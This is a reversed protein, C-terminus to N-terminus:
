GGYAFPHVGDPADERVRQFWTRVRPNVSFVGSSLGLLGWEHDTITLSGSALRWSIQYSYTGDTEGTYGNPNRLLRVVANSEVMVVVQTSIEESEVKEDLDPIKQKILVEADALLAEVQTTEDETLPRGLRDQVDSSSAYSM